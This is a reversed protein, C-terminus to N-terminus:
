DGLKEEESGLFTQTNKLKNAIAGAAARRASMSKQSALLAQKRLIESERAAAEADARARAEANSQESYMEKMAKNQMIGSYASLGVAGLGLAAGLSLGGSGAAAAATEAATTAAATGGATAATEAGFTIGGEAGLAGIAGITGAAIYAAKVVDDEQIKKGQHLESALEGLGGTADMALSTGGSLIASGVASGLNYAHEGVVDKIEDRIGKTPENWVVDAAKGVTDSYAKTVSHTVRRAAKKIKKGLGM